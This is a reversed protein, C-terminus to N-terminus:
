EEGQQQHRQESGSRQMIKPFVVPNAQFVLRPPYQHGGAIGINAPCHIVLIRLASFDFKDGANMLGVGGVIGRGPCRTIDVVAGTVVEVRGNRKVVAHIVPFFAVATENFVAFDAENITVSAFDDGRLVGSGVGERVAICGDIGTVPAGFPHIAAFVGHQIGHIGTRLSVDDVLATLAHGAPCLRERRLVHLYVPAVVGIGKGM